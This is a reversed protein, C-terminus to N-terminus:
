KSHSSIVTDSHNQALTRPTIL